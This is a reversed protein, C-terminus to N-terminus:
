EVWHLDRYEKPSLGYEKKFARYFSSYDKFGYSAYINSISKGSLIAAKCAHLRKKIIYQHLSLGYEKKFIHAVHFKSIYFANALHELSLDEELHQLIYNSIALTRDKEVFSNSCQKKEYIVRNLHLVLANIQLSIQATKGFRNGKVEEILSFVYSQIQNWEIHDFSFRHTNRSSVYQMLFGYDASAEMLRKCYDKSIWLIFRRYATTTDHFYPYHTTGPPILLVDGPQIRYVLENVHISINGELFFYFEYYDHTHASVTITPQTNYYYVEFDKSLMYQRTSFPSQLARKDM